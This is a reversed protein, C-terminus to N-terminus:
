HGKGQPLETLIIEPNCNCAGRHNLQDCWEDHLIRADFAKGSGILPQVGALKRLYNPIHKM